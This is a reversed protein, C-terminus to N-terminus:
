TRPYIGFSISENNNIAKLLFVNDKINIVSVWYAGAKPILINHNYVEGGETHSGKVHCARDFYVLIVPSKTANNVFATAGLTKDDNQLKVLTGVRVIKTTEPVVELTGENISNAFTASFGNFYETFDTIPLNILESENLSLVAAHKILMGGFISGRIPAFSIAIDRDKPRDLITHNKDYYNIDFKINDVPEVSDQTNIGNIYACSTTVIIGIFLIASKRIDM